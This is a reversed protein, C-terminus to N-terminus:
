RDRGPSAALRPGQARTRSSGAILVLMAIDLVYGPWADAMWVMTAPLSLVAGILAAVRWASRGALLLAGALVLVAAAAPWLLAFAGAASGVHMTPAGPGGALPVGLTSLGLLHVLGHGVILVGTRRRRRGLQHQRDAACRRAVAQCDVAPTGSDPDPRDTRTDM